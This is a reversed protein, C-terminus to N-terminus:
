MLRRPCNAKGNSHMAVYGEAELDRMLLRVAEKTKGVARAIDMMTQTGDALSYMQRRDPTTLYKEELEVKAKQTVPKALLTQMQRIHRLEELIERLISQTTKDLM